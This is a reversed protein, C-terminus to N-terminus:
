QHYAAVAKYIDNVRDDTDDDAGDCSGVREGDFAGFGVNEGVTALCPILDFTIEINKIVLHSYTDSNTEM